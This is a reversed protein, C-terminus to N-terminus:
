GGLCGYISTPLDQRMGIVICANMTSTNFCTAGVTTLSTVLKQCGRECPSLSATISFCRPVPSLRIPRKHIADHTSYGTNRLHNWFHAPKSNRANVQADYFFVHLCTQPPESKFKIFEAINVSSRCDM